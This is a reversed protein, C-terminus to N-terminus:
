LSAIIWPWAVISHLRHHDLELQHLARELHNELADLSEFLRVTTSPNRGYTMGFISSRISNPRTRRCTSCACMPHGRLPTAGIGVPAMWRVRVIREGPHRSAVEDLFRQMCQRNVRPLILTDLQGDAM